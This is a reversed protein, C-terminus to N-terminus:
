TNSGNSGNGMGGVQLHVGYIKYYNWIISETQEIDGDADPNQCHSSLEM